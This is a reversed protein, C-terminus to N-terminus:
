LQLANPRARSRAAMRADWIRENLGDLVIDTMTAMHLSSDFHTSICSYRYEGFTGATQAQQTAAHEWRMGHCLVDYVKPDSDAAQDVCLNFPYSRQTRQFPVTGNIMNWGDRITPTHAIQQLTSTAAREWAM